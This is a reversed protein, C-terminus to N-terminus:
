AGGLKLLAGVGTSLAWDVVFFFAATVVVMIGVMVSTIWTERRSPWTIKKAEARVERAFQLPNFPKKPAHVEAREAVAQASQRQPPTRPRLTPPLAQDKAM